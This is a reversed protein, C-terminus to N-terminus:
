SSEVHLRGATDIILTDCNKGSAVQEAPRCIDVPEQGTRSPHVPLGLSRGLVQLQEIAAPRYVDAPVLYPQRGQKKLLRALKGATTTKGSGQLGVLM